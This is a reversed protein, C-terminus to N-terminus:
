PMVEVRQSSVVRAQIMRRGATPLVTVSEGLAASSQVIGSAELYVGPRRIVIKVKAGREVATAKAVRYTDLAVTVPMKRVHRGVAVEVMLTQRGERLRLRPPLTLEVPGRPLVLGGNIEVRRLEGGEPLVAGLRARLLDVLDLETLTQGPRVVRVRSPLTLRQWPLRAQQLRLRIDKRRLVRAEGPQPAPGLDLDAYAPPVSRVVDGLVVRDAEVLVSARGKGGGSAALGGATLLVYVIM